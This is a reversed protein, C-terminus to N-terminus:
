EFVKIAGVSSCIIITGNESEVIQTINHSFDNFIQKVFKQIIRFNVHNNERYIDITFCMFNNIGGALFDGNRIKVLTMYSEKIGDYIYKKEYNDTDIITLKSGVVIIYKENIKELNEVWTSLSIDKTEGLYQFDKENINYFLLSKKKEYISSICIKNNNLGIINILNLNTKYEKRKELKNDNNFNLIYINGNELAAIITNNNFYKFIKYIRVKDEFNIGKYEIYENEFIKYILIKGVNTGILILDNIKCLSIGYGNENKKEDYTKVVINFMEKLEKKDYITIIGKTNTTLLRGDNLTLASLIFSGQSKIEIKKEVFDPITKLIFNNSNTLYNITNEIKRGIDKTNIELDSINFGHVDIISKLNKIMIYNLNNRKNEEYTNLITKYFIIEENNTNIFESCLSRIYNIKNDVEEQIEKQISDIKKKVKNLYDEYLNLNNRLQKITEENIEEIKELSHDSHEICDSCINKKCIECYNIFKKMHIPCNSDFQSIKIIKHNYHKNGYCENCYFHNCQYCFIFENNLNNSQIHNVNEFCAVKFIDIEKTKKIFDSLSMKKKHNNECLYNIEPKNGFYSLKIKCLQFCDPCRFSSSKNEKNYNMKNFDVESSFEDINSKSIEWSM